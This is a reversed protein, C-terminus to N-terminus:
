QVIKQVIASSLNAEKMLRDKFDNANKHSTFLGVSVRYWTRGQVEAPVYFAEWGQNKLNAAHNKAEDEQPYSAVQVTFKGIASSAISPLVTDPRRTPRPDATPAKGEIVRQVAPSPKHEPEQTARPAGDKHMSIQTTLQTDKNQKSEGSIHRYGDKTTDATTPVASATKRQPQKEAQKKQQEEREQQVFEATLSAIDEETLAQADEQSSAISRVPKYDEELALKRHDSDSVQKGVFTGVSFSLLSIFFTLVLKVVTDTRSGSKQKAM